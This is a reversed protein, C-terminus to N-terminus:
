AAFSCDSAGAHSPAADRKQRSRRRAPSEANVTTEDAQWAEPEGLHDAAKREVSLAPKDVAERRTTVAGRQKLLVTASGAHACGVALRLGAIM